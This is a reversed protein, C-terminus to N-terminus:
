RTQAVERIRGNGNFWAADDEHRFFRELGIRDREAEARTGYSGCESVTDPIEVIWWGDPRRETRM